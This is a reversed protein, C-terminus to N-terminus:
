RGTSMTDHDLMAALNRELKDPTREFGVRVAEAFPDTDLEPIPLVKESLVTVLADQVEPPKSQVPRTSPWCKGRGMCFVVTFMVGWITRGLGIIPRHRRVRMPTYKSM